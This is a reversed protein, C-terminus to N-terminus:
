GTVLMQTISIRLLTKPTIIPWVYMIMRHNFKGFYDIGALYSGFVIGSKGQFSTLYWYNRQDHFEFVDYNGNGADYQKLIDLITGKPIQTIKNKEMAEVSYKGSQILNTYLYVGDKGVVAINKGKWKAYDLSQFAIKYNDPIQTADFQTAESTQAALKKIDDLIATFASERYYDSPYNVKEIEYTIKGYDITGTSSTEDSTAQPKNTTTKQQTSLGQNNPCGLLLIVM